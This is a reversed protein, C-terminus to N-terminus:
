IESDVEEIGKSSFLQFCLLFRSLMEWFHVAKSPRIGSKGLSALCAGTSRGMRQKACVNWVCVCTCVCGNERAYVCQLRALLSTSTLMATDSPSAPHPKCPLSLHLNPSRQTCLRRLSPEASKRKISQWEAGVWSTCTSPLRLFLLKDWSDKWQQIQLQVAVQRKTSGRKDLVSSEIFTCHPVSHGACLHSRSTASWSYVPKRRLKM